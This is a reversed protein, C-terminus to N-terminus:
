RQLPHKVQHLQLPKEAAHLHVVLAAHGLVSARRLLQQVTQQRTPLMQHGPLHDQLLDQHPDDKRHCIRWGLNVSLGALDIHAHLIVVQLLPACSSLTSCPELV